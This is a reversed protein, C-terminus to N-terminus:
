EVVGVTGRLLEGLATVGIKALNHVRGVIVHLAGIFTVAVTVSALALTERSVIASCALTSRARAVGINAGAMTHAFSDSLEGRSIVSIDVLEPVLVGSHTTLTVVAEIARVARLTLAFVANVGQVVIIGGGDLVCSPVKANEGRGAGM